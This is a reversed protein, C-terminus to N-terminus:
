LKVVQKFATNDLVKIYYKNPPLYNIASHIRVENYSKMFESVIKYAEAFSKFEHKSLCEDELIRHFSEIHANKNPTAYPIREHEVKLEKLTNEFKFSRFQPGNDSRITLDAEKNHLDRKIMARKLTVSADQAKCSLGIHYDIISRDYVDIYSLIYFFRDEKHIYGYKIDVEWLSNSTTIKRNVAIKTSKAKSINRQPRLIDLEKCLRYVKKKNIVLGFKRSLVITIKFYGYFESGKTEIIQLIYEKIQEDCIKDGEKNLSYGPIPRGGKNKSSTDNNKTKM